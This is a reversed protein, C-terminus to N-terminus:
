RDRTYIYLQISLRFTWLYRETRTSDINHKNQLIKFMLVCLHTGPREPVKIFHCLFTDRTTLSNFSKKHKVIFLM